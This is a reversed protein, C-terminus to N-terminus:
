GKSAMDRAHFDCVQNHPNNSHGRVWIFEFKETKQVLLIYLQKWLDINKILLGLRNKWGNALWNNIHGKKLADVVYASDSVIEVESREEISSLAGIVAQLEMRNNTTEGHSSGKIINCRPNNATDLYALIACWGGPGPNGSCAGDTFIKYKRSVKGKFGMEEASSCESGVLDVDWLRIAKPKDVASPYTLALIAGSISYGVGVSLAGVATKFHLPIGDLFVDDHGQALLRNEARFLIQFGMHLLLGSLSNLGSSNQNDVGPTLAIDSSLFDPESSLNCTADAVAVFVSETM